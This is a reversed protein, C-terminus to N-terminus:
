KICLNRYCCDPCRTTSDTASPYAGSQIVDLCNKLEKLSDEKRQDTIPIEVIQYKSRTYCLYGTKVPKDYTKEILIAYLAAQIKQNRYIRGKNVAYKYDFPAMTDDDLLLVEDCIGKLNLEMCNMEVDPYKEVVGLKKRLYGPNVKKRLEHVDRGEQVKFRKEERQPVGLVDQYYIFRPCFLFELLHSPTLYYTNAHNEM